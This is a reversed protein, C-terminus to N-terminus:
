QRISLSQFDIGILILLVFRASVNIAIDPTKNAILM